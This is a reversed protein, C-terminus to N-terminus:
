LGWLEAWLVAAGVTLASTQALTVTSNAQVFYSNCIENLVGSAAGGAFLGPSHSGSDPSILNNISIAGGTEASTVHLNCLVLIRHIAGDNPATWTFINPTGNQLTFGNVGTTALLGMGGLDALAALASTAGTGGNPVTLPPTLNGITPVFPFFGV